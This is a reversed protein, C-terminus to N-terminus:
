VLGDAGVQGFGGFAPLGDGDAVQEVVSAADAVGFGVPLLVAAFFLHQAAGVGGRQLEFGAAAPCVAVVAVGDEAGNDGANGAFVVAFDQLFAHEGRQAHAGGADDALAVDNGVAGCAVFQVVGVAAQFVLFPDGGIVVLGGVAREVEREVVVAAPEGGYFGALDEFGFAPAFDEGGGAQVVAIGVGVAEAPREHGGGVAAGHAAVGACPLSEAGFQAAVFAVM